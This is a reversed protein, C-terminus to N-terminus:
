GRARRAPRQRSRGRRSAVAGRSARGTSRSPVVFSPMDGIKRKRAPTLAGVAGLLMAKLTDRAVKQQPSISFTYVANDMMSALAYAAVPVLNRQMGFSELVQEWHKRFAEEYRLFAENVEDGASFGNTIKRVPTESTGEFEFAADVMRALYDELTKAGVLHQRVFHSLADFHEDLLAIAVASRNPFHSYIVPKAVRARESLAMMTLAGMGEDAVLQRAIKLLQLRRLTRTMPPTRQGAPEDNKARAKKSHRM